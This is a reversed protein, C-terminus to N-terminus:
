AVVREKGAELCISAFDLPDLSASGVLLGSAGELNLYASANDAKLPGGYLVPRGPALRSISKVAEAAEAPDPMTRVGIGTYPEYALIITELARDELAAVQASAYSPDLCLVPIIGAAVAEGVKNAIEQHTEHFYRRRSSHGVIAYEVLETVM